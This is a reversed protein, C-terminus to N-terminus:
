LIEGRKPVTIFIRFGDDTQIQLNGGLTEVRDKMNRIGIGKSADAIQGYDRRPRRTGNDEVILQYLGPHERVIIKVLTANSHKTVNHLAEKVVAIFSYKIERPIDYGMDYELQITCFTCEKALSELVEKLNVSEDHLDHVSSRVSTMAANLTDELQHLPETLNGEGHIAKMAGVMLIARSLMHGVNDHIERAIRNREKLTAAYIEYDQKQLLTQNKEKLLINKEVGDDRIRRFTEDLKAYQETQYQILGAIGCGIVLIFFVPQNGPIYVYACMSGLIVAPLYLRYELISYLIVPTFLLCEPCLVAVGFFVITSALTWRWSSILRNMCAYILVTLFAAVFATDTQMLLMALFCYIVLLTQDIVRKMDNM